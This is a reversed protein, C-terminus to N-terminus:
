KRDWYQKNVNITKQYSSETIPMRKRNADMKTGCANISSVVHIYKDPSHVDTNRFVAEVGYYYEGLLANWFIDGESLYSPSEKIRCCSPYNEIESLTKEKEAETLVQWRAGLVYRGILDIDPIRKDESLCYGKKVLDYRGFLFLLSAFIVVLFSCALFIQYKSNM